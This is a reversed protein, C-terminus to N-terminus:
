RGIEISASVDDNVPLGNWAAALDRRDRSIGAALPDATPFRISRTVTVSGSHDRHGPTACRHPRHSRSNAILM